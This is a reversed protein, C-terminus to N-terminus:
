KRVHTDTVEKPTFTFLEKCFDKFLSMSRFYAFPWMSPGAM